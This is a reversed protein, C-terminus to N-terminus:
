KLERITKIILPISFLIIFLLKFHLSRVFLDVIFTMALLYVGPILTVLVKKFINKQKLTRLTKILITIALFFFVISTAVAVASITGYTKLVILDMITGLIIAFIYHKLLSNQQNNMIIISSPIQLLSSFFLGVILIKLTLIAPIYDPLLLTIVPEIFMFGVGLIVPLGYSLLKMPKEYYEYVSKPDKTKGFREMIRPFITNSLSMPIYHILLSIFAALGYHGTMTEGLFVFILYKDINEMLFLAIYVLMIPFGIKLLKRFINRNFRLKIKKTVYLRAVLIGLSIVMGLLLGEIEFFFLLSLGIVTNLISYYLDFHGIRKIKKESNLESRQFNFINSLLIVAGLLIIEIQYEQVKNSLSLLILIVWVSLTSFVNWAFATEKIAVNHQSHGSGKNKPVERGMASNVGLELYSTIQNVMMIINWIGYLAPGLFSAIFFGRIAFIAQAVYRSISLHATEEFIKKQDKM